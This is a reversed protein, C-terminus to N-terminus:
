RIMKMLAAVRDLRTAEQPSKGMKLVELIASIEQESFRLGSNRGQAAANMLFPLMDSANKGNGQEALKQLLDLKGQDMGELRPNKKWDEQNESM